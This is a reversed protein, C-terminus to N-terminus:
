QGLCKNILVFLATFVISFQVNNNLEIINTEQCCIKVISLGSARPGTGPLDMFPFPFQPRQATVLIRM